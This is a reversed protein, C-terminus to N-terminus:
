SVKKNDVKAYTFDASLFGYSLMSEMAHENLTIPVENEKMCKDLMFKNLTLREITFENSKIYDSVCSTKDYNELGVTYEINSILFGPM